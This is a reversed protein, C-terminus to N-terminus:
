RQSSEPHLPLIVLRPSVARCVTPLTAIPVTPLVAGQWLYTEQRPRDCKSHEVCYVGAYIVVMGPGLTIDQRAM